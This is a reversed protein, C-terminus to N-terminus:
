KTVIIEIHDKESFIMEISKDSPYPEIHVDLKKLPVKVTLLKPLVFTHWFLKLNHLMQEWFTPDFDIRELHYSRNAINFIFIDGYSRKTIAMQGQIQFYYESSKKLRVHGERIELHKYTKPSPAKDAPVSPPCKIECVGKGHCKCELELDPSGSIYPESELITMGPDQFLMNKHKITIVQKYKAKAHREASIGHKMQWTTVKEAEGLIDQLLPTPDCDIKKLTEMRTFVRKFKSATIRGKRQNFWFESNSQMTTKDYIIAIESPSLKISNLFTEQEYSPNEKNKILEAHEIISLIETSTETVVPSTYRKGEIIEIFCSEPIASKLSQHFKKRLNDTNSVLKKGSESMPLYELKQKLKEKATDPLDCTSLKSYKEQQILFSSLKGPKITKKKTSPIVFQCLTSTGTKKTAGMLNAVEVRFLLGAVHNCSGLFNFSLAILKIKSNTIKQAKSFIQFISNKESVQLTRIASTFYKRFFM